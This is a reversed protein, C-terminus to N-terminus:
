YSMHQLDSLFVILVGLWKRRVMGFLSNDSSFNSIIKQFNCQIWLMLAYSKRKMCFLRHPVRINKLFIKNVLCLLCGKIFNNPFWMNYKRQSPCSSQHYWFYISLLYNFAPCHVQLPFLSQCCKEYGLHNVFPPHELLFDM